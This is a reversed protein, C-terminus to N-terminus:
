EGDKLGRNHMKNEGSICAKPLRRIKLGAEQSRKLIKQSPKLLVKDRIDEEGLYCCFYNGIYGTSVELDIEEISYFLLISFVVALIPKLM